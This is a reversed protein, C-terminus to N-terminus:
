KRSNVKTRKGILESKQLKSAKANETCCDSEQLKLQVKCVKSKQPVRLKVNEKAAAPLCTLAEVDGHVALGIYLIDKM